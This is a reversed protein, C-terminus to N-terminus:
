SHKSSAKRLRGPQNTTRQPTRRDLFDRATFWIDFMTQQLLHLVERDAMFAWTETSSTNFGGRITCIKRYDKRHLVEFSTHTSDSVWPGLGSYVPSDSDLGDPSRPPAELVSPWIQDTTGNLWVNVGGADWVLERPIMLVASAPGALLALLGSVLLLLLFCWRHPWRRSGAQNSDFNAIWFDRSLFTGPSGFSFGAGMLSALILLEQVKAAVLTPWFHFMLRKGIFMFRSDSFAKAQEPSNVKLRWAVWADKLKTALKEFFRNTSTIITELMTVIFRALDVLDLVM